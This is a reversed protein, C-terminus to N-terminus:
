SDSGKEDALADRVDQETYGFANLKNLLQKGNSHGIHLKAGLVDRKQRADKGIILGLDILVEKSISDHGEEFPTSVNSLAERITTLGAHEVGIKGHKNKAKEREIYAHKVGPV